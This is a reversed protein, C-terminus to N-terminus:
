TLRRRTLAGVAPQELARKLCILAQRRRYKVTSTAVGMVEATQEITLGQYYHLHLTDRLEPELQDVSSYVQAALDAQAAAEDPAPEPSSCALWWEDNRSEFPRSARRWDVYVHYAIGHIWSGISSRGAFTPLATWVRGFTRQTLDAADSEHATLRRLFCYIQQYMQEILLVAAAKDGSRLRAIFQQEDPAM